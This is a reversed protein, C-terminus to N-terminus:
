ACIMWMRTGKRLLSEYSVLPTDGKSLSLYAALAPHQRRATQVDEHFQTDEVAAAIRRIHIAKAGTPVLMASLAAQTLQKDFVVDDMDEYGDSAFADLFRGYGAKVSELWGEISRDMMTTPPDHAVM